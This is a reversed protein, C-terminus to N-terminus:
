QAKLPRRTAGPGLVRARAGSTGGATPVPRHAAAELARPLTKVGSLASRGSDSKGIAGIPFDRKGITIVWSVSFYGASLLCHFNSVAKCFPDVIIWRRECREWM